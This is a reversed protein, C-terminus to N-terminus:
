ATEGVIWFLDGEAPGAPPRAPLCFLMDAGNNHKIIAQLRWFTNALQPTLNGAFQISLSYRTSVAAVVSPTYRSTRMERGNIAKVMDNQSYTTKPVVAFYGSSTVTTRKVEWVKGGPAFYCVGYGSLRRIADAENAIETPLHQM